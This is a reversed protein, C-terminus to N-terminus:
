EDPRNDAPIYPRGMISIPQGERNRLQQYNLRYFWRDCEDAHALEASLMVWEAEYEVFGLFRGHGIRIAERVALPPNPNGLEGRPTASLLGRPLEFVVEARTPTCGYFYRDVM